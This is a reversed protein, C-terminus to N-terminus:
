LSKQKSLKLTSGSIQKGNSFVHVPKNAGTRVIDINYKHGAYPIKIRVKKWGHPLWPDLVLGDAAPRIGILYNLM